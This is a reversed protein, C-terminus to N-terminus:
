GEQNPFVCVPKLLAADWRGIGLLTGRGDLARMWEDPFSPGEPVAISNGHAFRVAGEGDLRIGPMSKLAVNPDLIQRHLAARDMTELEAVTVCTSLLMDGAATRCLGSLHGGCGLSRGLDDALSRVYTGISCRIDLELLPPRYSIFDIADIRVTRAERPVDQGKRALKYLRKGGIKRASFMPPIQEIEGIFAGLAPLIADASTPIRDSQARVQGEGDLTDTEVGLHIQARYCKDHGTLFRSLRTAAGLCLVLVGTAMPDLTGTHGVKKLQYIRRIHDVVGHSSIGCPKDVPM